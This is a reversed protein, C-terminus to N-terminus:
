HGSLASSFDVSAQNRGCETGPIVRYTTLERDFAAKFVRQRERYRRRIFVTERIHEPTMIEKVIFMAMDARSVASILGLRVHPGAIYIGTAPQNTLRPPKVITWKLGSEMIVREQGARDGAMAPRLRNFLGAMAQFPRTRNQRYNGIMAGTQCIIRGVDCRQMADVIVRTAQACFIDTYPLRPGFACCVADCGCLTREVAMPDQLSGAIVEVAAGPAAFTSPDRVLTRVRLGKAVAREIIQQGTAGSGGFVALSRVSRATMIVM